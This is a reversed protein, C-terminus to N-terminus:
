MMNGKTQINNSPINPSLICLPNGCVGKLFIELNQQPTWRSGGNSWAGYKGSAVGNILTAQQLSHKIVLRKCIM